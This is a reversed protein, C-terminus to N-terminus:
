NEDELGDALTGDWAEREEIEEQWAKADNKLAAFAENAEELFQKRRYEEVAKDLIEQMPEGARNALQRLTKWAARSIRVTTSGM